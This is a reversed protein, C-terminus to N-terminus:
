TCCMMPLENHVVQIHLWLFRYRLCERGTESACRTVECSQGLGLLLDSEGRLGGGLSFSRSHGSGGGGWIRQEQGSFSPRCVIMVIAREFLATSVPVSWESWCTQSVECGVWGGDRVLPVRRFMNVSRLNDLVCGEGGQQVGGPCLLLYSVNV